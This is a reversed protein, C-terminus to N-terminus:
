GRPAFRQLLVTLGFLGLLICSLERPADAVALWDVLVIGAFLDPAAKAQEEGSTWWAYRLARVVWLGAVAGLLLAGQRYAEANMVLALVVPAALLLAPWFALAGLGRGRPRTAFATGSVYLALALGCWIAWGTVGHAATAAATLYLFCRCLGLFIPAIAAWKHLTDHLLICLILGLGLGWPVEGIWLLALSGAILWVLGWRWVAGRTIVGSPIPRAPHHTRDFEADFADNLFSGGLWLLSTAVMLFPLRQQNEAGGLWWGALCNSWVTPLGSIRSLGLFMRLRSM